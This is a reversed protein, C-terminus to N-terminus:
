RRPSAWRRESRSSRRAVEAHMGLPPQLRRGSKFRPHLNQLNLPTPCRTTEHQDKTPGVGENQRTNPGYQVVNPSCHRQNSGARNQRKARGSSRDSSCSNKKSLDGLGGPMDLTKWIPLTLVEM